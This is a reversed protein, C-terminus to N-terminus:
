TSATAPYTISLTINVSFIIYPLISVLYVLSRSRSELIELKMFM